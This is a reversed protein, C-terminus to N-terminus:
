GQVVFVYRGSIVAAQKHPIEVQFQESIALRISKCLTSIALRQLMLPKMLQDGLTLLFDLRSNMKGSLTLMDRHILYANLCASNLIRYFM